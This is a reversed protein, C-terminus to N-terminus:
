AQPVQSCAPCCFHGKAQCKTCSISLAKSKVIISQYVGDVQNFRFSDRRNIEGSGKYRSCAILRLDGVRACAWHVAQVLFYVSIKTKNMTFNTDNKNFKRNASIHRFTMMLSFQVHLFKYSSLISNLLRMRMLM